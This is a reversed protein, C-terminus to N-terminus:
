DKVFRVNFKYDPSNDSQYFTLRLSSLDIGAEQISVTIGESTWFEAIDGDIPSSTGFVYGAPYANFGSANTGIVNNWNTKSVLSKIEATQTGNSPFRIGYFQALTTYDQQNPIRWGEPLTISALEVKSYYRGYAPKSNNEDYPVGGPGDYNVATWTQTGIVVIPYNKGEIKVGAERTPKENDPGCSFFLYIFVPTTFSVIKFNMM